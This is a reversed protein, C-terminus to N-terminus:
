VLYQLGSGRAVAPRASSAPHGGYIHHKDFYVWAVLGSALTVRTRGYAEAEYDDALLEQTNLALATGTVSDRANPSPVLMPHRDSGSVAIVEPDSITVVTLLHGLLEDPEGVVARGFTALQVAELQLTGYSFLYEFAAADAENTM